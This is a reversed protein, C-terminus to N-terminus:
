WVLLSCGAFCHRKGSSNSIIQSRGHIPVSHEQPISLSYICRALLVLRHLPCSYVHDFLPFLTKTLTTLSLFDIFSIQTSSHCLSVGLVTLSSRALLVFCAYPREDDLGRVSCIAASQISLLRRICVAGGITHTHSLQVSKQNSM